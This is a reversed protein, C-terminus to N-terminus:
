SAGADRLGLARRLQKVAEILTTVEQEAAHQELGKVRAALRADTPSLHRNLRVLITEEVSTLPTGLSNEEQYSPNTAAEAANVFRALNYPTGGAAVTSAAECLNPPTLRMGDDIQSSQILVLKALLKDDWHRGRTERQFARLQKTELKYAAATLAPTLAAELQERGTGPGTAHLVGGCASRVQQTMETYGSVVVQRKSLISSALRESALLYGRAPSQQEGSKVALTLGAAVAAVIVAVSVGLVVLRWRTRRNM